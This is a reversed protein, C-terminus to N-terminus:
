SGHIRAIESRYIREGILRYLIRPPPPLMKLFRTREEVDADALIAGLVLFAKKGAKPMSNKGREGLTAWEEHTIHQAVLPLIWLEEEGLHEDLVRSAHEVVDALKNRDGVAASRRWGPLLEDVTHLLESMREHQEEMRAVLDARVAVRERLAPWLLEDEGTHHHHLAGAVDALWGGVVEARATDGDPVARITAPLRAFERRFFRHVVVMDWTDVAAANPM